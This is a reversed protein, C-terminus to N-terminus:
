PSLEGVSRNFTLTKGTGQHCGTIEGTSIQNFFSRLRPVNM